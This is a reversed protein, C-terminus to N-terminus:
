HSIGPAWWWQVPISLLWRGNQRCPNGPGDRCPDNPGLSDIPIIPALPPFDVNSPFAFVTLGGASGRLSTDVGCSGDGVCPDVLSPDEVAGVVHSDVPFDAPPFYSVTLEVNILDAFAPSASAVLILALLL